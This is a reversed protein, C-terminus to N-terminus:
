GAGCLGPRREHGAEFFALRGLRVEVHRRELAQFGLALGDLGAGFLQLRAAVSDLCIPWSLDLPSDVSATIASTACSLASSSCDRAQLLDLGLHLRQQEGHGVQRVFAHRDALVLGAVDFHAAPARRAVNSKAIL